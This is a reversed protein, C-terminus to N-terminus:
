HLDSTGDAAPAPAANALADASALSLPRGFLYGQAQDCGADSLAQAQAETEV